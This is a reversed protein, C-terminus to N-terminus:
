APRVSPFHRNTKFPGPGFYKVVFLLGATLLVLCMARWIM